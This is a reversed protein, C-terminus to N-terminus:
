EAPRLARRARPGLREEGPAEPDAGTDGREPRQAAIEALQAYTAFPFAAIVRRLLAIDEAHDLAAPRDSSAALKGGPPEPPAGTIPPVPRAAPASVSPRTPPNQPPAESRMSAARATAPTM